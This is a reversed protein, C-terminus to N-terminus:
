KNAEDLYSQWENRITEAQQAPPNWSGINWIFQSGTDLGPVLSNYNYRGNTAMRKITLDVSETDRMTNYYTNASGDYDEFGPVPGEYLNFAFAIKWARDVDYCSPIAYPNDIYINIYDKARPGMPFCVFGFEDEMDKFENGAAYADYAIFAGEGNVFATKWYDWEAGEPMYRYKEMMDIAWNLGEMTADSESTNIYKGNEDRDILQGGNSYMAEYFMSTADCVMAYRDVVGDNDTDVHIKKCIEEFKDWTWQMSEQLDYIEQPDIGAEKLLRKNFYMGGRPEPSRATMLYNAGNMAGLDYMAHNWQPEDFNLCDLKNLDYMLGNKMATVMSSSNQLCFVLNRDDGGSTVYNQFDEPASAWDGEGLQKIKFNYTEQIWDIYELRAEEYANTAEPEEGSSWWDRIIVEMGGLDYVNGDKDKLVTYKEPEETPTETPEETPTETAEPTAEQTPTETKEPQEAPASAPETKKCGSLGFVLSMALTVALIKKVKVFHM